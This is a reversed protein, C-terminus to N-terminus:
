QESKIDVREQLHFPMRRTVPPASDDYGPWFNNPSCVHGSGNVHLINQSMRIRVTRFFITDGGWLM